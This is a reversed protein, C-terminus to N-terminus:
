NGSIKRTGYFSKNITSEAYRKVFDPNGVLHCTQILPIYPAYVVGAELFQHGKYGLVPSNDLKPNVVEQKVPDYSLISTPLMVAGVAMGLRKFFSRRNM